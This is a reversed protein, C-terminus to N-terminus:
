SEQSRSLGLASSPRSEWCFTARDLCLSPLEFLGGGRSASYLLLLAPAKIIGGKM